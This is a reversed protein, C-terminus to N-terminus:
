KLRARFDNMDFLRGPCSKRLAPVLGAMAQAERHGIVNSPKIGYKTMLKQVLDLAVGLNAAPCPELDYNGVICVGLSKSNFGGDGVHAGQVNEARGPIIRIIGDVSEVGYHYGIDTWGNHGMHYKRIADWDKTKGDKTLSHHIIIYQPVM